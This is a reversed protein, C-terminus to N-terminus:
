GAIRYGVINSAETVTVANRAGSDTPNTITVTARYYKEGDTAPNLTIASGTKGAIDSCTAASSNICSQWQFVVTSGTPVGQWVGRTAALRNPYGTKFAAVPAATAFHTVIATPVSNDDTYLSGQDSTCVFDAPVNSGYNYCRRNRLVLRYGVDDVTPRYSAGKGQLGVVGTPNISILDTTGTKTRYWQWGQSRWRIQDGSLSVQTAVSEGIATGTLWNASAVGGYVRLNGADDYSGGALVPRATATASAAPAPDAAATSALSLSAIASGLVLLLSKKM